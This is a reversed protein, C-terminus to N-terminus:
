PCPTRNVSIRGLGNVTIERELSEPGDPVCYRFTTPASARGERDFTLEGDVGGTVSAGGTLEGQQRLDTANVSVSWGSHWEDDTAAALLVSEGRRVAEARAYNLDTVLAQVQTQARNSAILNNFSPAAIMALVAAVSLTVLLEILTFGRKHSRSFM